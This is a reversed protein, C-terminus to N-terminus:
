VSKLSLTIYYCLLVISNIHYYFNCVLSVQPPLLSFNKGQINPGHLTEKSFSIYTRTHERVKFLWSVYIQSPQNSNKSVSRTSPPSCKWSTGFTIQQTLNHTPQQRCRLFWLEYCRLTLHNGRGEGPSRLFVPVCSQIDGHEITYFFFFLLIFM